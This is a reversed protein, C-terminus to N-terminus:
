SLLAAVRPDRRPAAESHGVEFATALVREVRGGDGRVPEHVVAVERGALRAREVVREGAATRRVVAPSVLGSRVELGPDPAGLCSGLASLLFGDADYEFMLIHARALLAGLEAAIESTM